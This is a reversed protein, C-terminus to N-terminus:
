QNSQEAKLTDIRRDIAAITKRHEEVFAARLAQTALLETSYLHIPQQSTTKEWGEGHYISSSCAKFVGSGVGRHRNIQWGKSLIHSPSGTPPPLIDREPIPEDRLDAEARLAREELCKIYDQTWIPLKNIREKM